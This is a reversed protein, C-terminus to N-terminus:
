LTFVLTRAMTTGPECCTFALGFFFAEISDKALSAELPALRAAGHAKAHIRVDEVWTLAAGRGAITVKFTALTAASSSMKDAWRHCGCGCDDAVKGINAIPLKSCLWSVM